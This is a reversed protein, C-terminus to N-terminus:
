SVKLFFAYGDGFEGVELVDYRSIEVSYTHNLFPIVDVLPSKKEEGNGLEYVFTEVGTDEDVDLHCTEVALGAEVSFKTGLEVLEDLKLFLIKEM